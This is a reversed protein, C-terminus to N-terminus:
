NLGLFGAPYQFRGVHGSGRGQQFNTHIGEGRGDDQSLAGSRLLSVQNDLPFDAIFIQINGRHPQFVPQQSGLIPNGKGGLLQLLTGMGPVRAGGARDFHSQANSVAGFIQPFLDKGHAQFRPLHGRGIGVAPNGQDHHAAFPKGQIVSKLIHAGGIHRPHLDVVRPIATPSPAFVRHIGRFIRGADQLNGLLAAVSECQNRSASHVQAFWGGLWAVGRM